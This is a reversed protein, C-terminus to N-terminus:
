RGRNGGARGASTPSLRNLRHPQGDPVEGGGARRGTGLRGDDVDVRGVREALQLLTISTFESPKPWFNGLINLDPNSQAATSKVSLSFIWLIPIITVFIVVLSGVGLWTTMRKDSNM